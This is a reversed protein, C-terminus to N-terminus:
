PRIPKKREIIYAGIHYYLPDTVFCVKGVLKDVCFPIFLMIRANFSQKEGCGLAKSVAEKAAWRGAYYFRKDTRADCRRQEEATYIRDIFSKGFRQISDDIRSIEIIDIGIGKIM